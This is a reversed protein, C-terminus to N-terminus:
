HLCIASQASSCPVPDSPTHRQITLKQGLIRREGKKRINLPQAMEGARERREQPTFCEGNYGRVVRTNQEAEAGFCSALRGKILVKSTTLGFL